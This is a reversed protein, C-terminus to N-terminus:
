LSFAIFYGMAVMFLIFIIISLVFEINNMKKPTYNVTKGGQSRHWRSMIKDGKIKSQNILENTEKKILNINKTRKKNTEDLRKNAAKTNNEQIANLDTIAKKVNEITAQLDKISTILDKVNSKFALDIKKRVDSM